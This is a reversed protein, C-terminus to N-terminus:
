CLTQMDFITVDVAKRHKKAKGQYEQVNFEMLVEYYKKYYALYRTDINQKLLDAKHVFIESEDDMVIFGYEKAENFFKLRGLSKGETRQKDGLEFPYKPPCAPDSLISDTSRPSDEYYCPQLQASLNLNTPQFDLATPSLKRESKISKIVDTDDKAPSSLVFGTDHTERRNSDASNGDNSVATNVSLCKTLSLYISGGGDTMRRPITRLNREKAFRNRPSMCPSVFEPSSKVAVSFAKKLMIFCDEALFIRRVPKDKLGFYQVSLHGGDIYLLKIRFSYAYSFLHMIAKNYFLSDNAVCEEIQINNTFINTKLSSHLSSCVDSTLYSHLASLKQRIAARKTKSNVLIVEFLEWISFLPLTKPDRILGKSGIVRNLHTSLACSEATALPSTDLSSM